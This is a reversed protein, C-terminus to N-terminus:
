FKPFAPPAAEPKPKTKDMGGRLKIEAEVVERDRGYKMRSLNIINQKIQPNSPFDHAGSKDWSTMSFPDPNTGDILMKAYATANPLNVMDQSEIAPAFEDVLYEADKAGVRFVFKSGANGFVADRIQESLQSIYQNAVILNLRYKRAEALITAFEDTAFNQFEDVYLYFDKREDELIDNRSLAARLIAPVLLLGLFNSNEEGIFGKSLNILLIKQSDMVERINISSESQGIINRMLTNTIFTDFKSTIYGLKESKHFKDTNAFEEEWYTRVVDDKLLPLYEQVYTMDNDMLLRLVEILTSGKKAMATLMANRVSREFIPGTIGQNHPDFMKKLMGIFANVVIHKDQEDYYDMINWGIPREYDAPNFYIVDEAREPPIMGLVRDIDSGHPDIFAVGRGAYIDQMLLSTIFRSKGTGTQGIVYMHRRRDDGDDKMFIDRDMGRYNSKGIWLGQTPLSEPPAITKSLLWKIYPTEVTKNPLHYVTALEEINLSSGGELPMTRYVFNSIFERKPTLKSGEDKTFKNGEPATFQNFAGVINDVNAKATEPTDGTCVINIVTRFMLHSAKRDINQLAEQSVKIRSKEPDSNHDEVKNVFGRGNKATNSTDPTIMVQIVGGEGPRFKSMASTITTMPDNKLDEFIRIPKYEDDDLKLSTYAVKMGQKFINYDEVIRLEANPYSGNVAKEVLSAIKRPAYVYFRISEPLGVIEFSIVDQVELYKQVGKLKGIGHLNAFMQKAVEVETENGRPVAVEFLIGDSAKEKRDKERIKRSLFYAGAVGAGVVLLILILPLVISAVNVGSSASRSINDAAVSSTSGTDTVIPAVQFFMYPSIIGKSFKKILNKPKQHASM